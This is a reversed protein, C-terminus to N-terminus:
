HRIFVAHITLSNHMSVGGMLNWTLGFDARNVEIETDLWVEDPGHVSAAVDCSLPRTRDRVTLAGTVLAGHDSLQTGEVRFTIDAYNDTDFFDPSRLHKDRRDNKTDISAAVVSVSGSVTGDASVTGSGEVQGFVGKVSALGWLARSKLRISSQGLDLAWEGVLAGINLTETPATM